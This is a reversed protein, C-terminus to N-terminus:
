PCGGGYISLFVSYDLFNVTEDDNLDASPDNAGFAVIFASTDLFNLSGYPAAFDADNCRLDFVFAEGGSLPIDSELSGNGGVVVIPGSISVDLGFRSSSAGVSAPTIRAIEVPPNASIDFVYVGTKNILSQHPAGVVLYNGSSAVSAGFRGYSSADSAILQYVQSGDSADFLYVSGRKTMSVGDNFPAGVAIYTSSGTEVVAVDHGFNDHDAHDSPTLTELLVGSTNYLYAHSRSSKGDTNDTGVAVYSGHIDVSYGFGSFDPTFGSPPGFTALPRTTTNSFYGIGSVLGDPDYYTSGPAGIVVNGNEVALAAGFRENRGATSDVIRDEFLGTSREFFSVSALPNGTESGEDTGVLVTEGDTAVYNGFWEDDILGSYVFSENPMDASGLVFGLAHGSGGLPAGVVIFDGEISVSRGFGSYAETDSPVLEAVLRGVQGQAVGGCASLLVCISVM